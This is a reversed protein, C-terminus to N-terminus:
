VRFALVGLGLAGLGIGMFESGLVGLGLARFGIGM